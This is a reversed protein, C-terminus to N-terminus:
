LDESPVLIDAEADVQDEDDHLQAHVPYHEIISGDPSSDGLWRYWKVQAHGMTTTPFISTNAAPPESGGYVGPTLVYEDHGTALM